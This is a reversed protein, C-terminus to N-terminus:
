FKLLLHCVAGASDIFHLDLKNPRMEVFVALGVSWFVEYALSDGSFISNWKSEKEAVSCGCRHLCELVHRAKCVKYLLKGRLILHPLMISTRENKWRGNFCISVLDHFSGPMAKRHDNLHCCNFGDVWFGHLPCVNMEQFSVASLSLALLSSLTQHHM